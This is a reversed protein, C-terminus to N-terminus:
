SQKSTICIMETPVKFPLTYLKRPLLEGLYQLVPTLSSTSYKKFHGLIYQYSLYKFGQGLHHLQMGVLKLLARISTPSYYCLHEEKLHFWQDNLIRRSFAAINPTVIFLIGKEALLERIQILVKRPDAFHEIVDIMTVVNFSGPTFAATALDGHFVDFGLQRAYEAAPSIEVGCAHYGALQAAELMSGYACGVDLLAGSEVGFTRCLKLYALGTTMKMRRVEQAFADLEWYRYYDLDYRITRSCVHAPQFVLSCHSCRLLVTNSSSIRWWWATNFSSCSPCPSPTNISIRSHIHAQDKM